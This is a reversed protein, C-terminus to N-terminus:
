WKNAPCKEQKVRTKMVLMCGCLKCFGAKYHACPRCINMRDDKLQMTKKDNVAMLYFGKPLNTISM